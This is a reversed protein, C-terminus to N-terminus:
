PPMLWSNTAAVSGGSRAAIVGSDTISLVVVVRYGPPMRLVPKARGHRLRAVEVGLGGRRAVTLGPRELPDVGAIARAPGVLHEVGGRAVFDVRNRGVAVVHRRHAVRQVGDREHVLDVHRHEEGTLPGVLLGSAVARVEGLVEGARAQFPEREGVAGV